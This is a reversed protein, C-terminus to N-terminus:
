EFAQIVKNIVTLGEVPAGASAALEWLARLNGIVANRRAEPERALAYEAAARKVDAICPDQEKSPSAGASMSNPTLGARWLTWSRGYQGPFPRHGTAHM